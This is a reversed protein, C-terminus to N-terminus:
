KHYKTGKAIEFARYIQEILVLRVIQHTMTMPSLSICRYNKKLEDPLGDAGGIAMALRSKSEIFQAQLFDSFQESDFMKGKADLCIVVPEKALLECLQDNNKAWIFELKLIPSLRKVYEEIAENLWDEKTKGISFIKLKLM